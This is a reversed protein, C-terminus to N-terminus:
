FNAYHQEHALLWKKRDIGYAYGGISGNHCVVRHCPLMIAFPNLRNANAVARQASPKQISAAQQSYSQCTGYPIAQLSQWVTKQFLTGICHLPTTFKKLTGRFYADLEQQACDIAKSDKSRHELDLSVKIEEIFILLYLYHHDGAALM